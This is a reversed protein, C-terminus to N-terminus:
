REDGAEIARRSQSLDASRLPPLAAVARIWAADNRPDTTPPLAIGHDRAHRAFVADIQQPDLDDLGEDLVRTEEADTLAHAKWLVSIRVQDAPYRRLQVDGDRIEWSGDQAACLVASERLRDPPPAAEASGIARIRHLMRDNDAVLGVNWLPPVELVSAREAGEPWYEFAGDSGRYFWVLVSAVRIAWREFLGSRGMAYLLMPSHTRAPAGRFHPMDLHAASAPMPTQLNVMLAQPRIIEAGFTQAAAERLRPARLLADAEPVLARGSAAWYAKFWPISTGGAYTRDVASQLAYPAGGRLVRLVNAEDEFAPQLRVPKPLVSRSNM